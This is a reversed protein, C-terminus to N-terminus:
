MGEFSTMATDYVSKKIDDHACRMEQHKNKLFVMMAETRAVENRMKIVDEDIDIYRKRAESSDKIGKSQLYDGAKDLYAIAEATKLKAEAQGHLKIAHALMTNAVDMGQIFDRLYMPANMKNVKHLEAVKNSYEALKTVDLIAVNNM